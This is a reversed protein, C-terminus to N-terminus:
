PPLQLENINKQCNNGFKLKNKSAIKYRSRKSFFKFSIPLLMSKTFNKNIIKFYSLHQFKKILVNKPGYFLISSYSFKM